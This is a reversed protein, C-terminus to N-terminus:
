SGHPGDPPLQPADPHLNTVWMPVVRKGQLVEMVGQRIAEQQEEIRGHAVPSYTGNKLQTKDHEYGLSLGMQYLLDVLLEVRKVGWQEPTMNRNGLLDLYQRWYGLVKKEHKASESFELDIRNLAEVHQPSLNYARTAMLTKYVWLKRGRVENREDLYRTLQVAIVPGVLVAIIMVIDTVKVTWDFEM